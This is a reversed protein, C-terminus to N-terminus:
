PLLRESKHWLEPVTEGGSCIIIHEYMELSSKLVEEKESFRNPQPFFFCVECCKLHLTVEFIGSERPFYECLSCHQGLM